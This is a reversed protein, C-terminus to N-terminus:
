TLFLISISYFIFGLFGIIGLIILCIKIIESLDEKSPKKAVILVRKYNELSRKITELINKFM